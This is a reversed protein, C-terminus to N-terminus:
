PLVLVDSLPKVFAPPPPPTISKAGVRSAVGARQPVAMSDDARM